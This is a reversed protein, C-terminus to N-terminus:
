LMNNVSYAGNTLTILSVKLSLISSPMTCDLALRNKNRNLKTKLRMTEPLILKDMISCCMGM